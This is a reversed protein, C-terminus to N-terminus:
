SVQHRSQPSVPATKSSSKLGTGDPATRHRRTGDPATRHRGTGDPATRHRGTGDPATRHPGTRDPTTRHQGTSNFLAFGFNAVLLGLYLSLPTSANFSALFLARASM